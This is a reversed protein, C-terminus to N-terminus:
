VAVAKAEFIRQLLTLWAEFIRWTATPTHIFMSVYLMNSALKPELKMLIM